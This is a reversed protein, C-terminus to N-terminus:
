TIIIIIIIMIMINIIIIIIISIISIIHMHYLDNNNNDDDDDDDNNNNFLPVSSYFVAGCSFLCSPLFLLSRLAAYERWVACEQFIFFGRDKGCSPRLLVLFGLISRPSSAPRM